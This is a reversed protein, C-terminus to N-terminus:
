RIPPQPSFNTLVGWGPFRNRNRKTNTDHTRAPSAFSRSRALSVNSGKAPAVATSIDEPQPPEPAPNRREGNAAIRMPKLTIKELRMSYAHVKQFMDLDASIEISYAHTKHKRRASKHSRSAIHMPKLTFKLDM